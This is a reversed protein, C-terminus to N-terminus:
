KSKPSSLNCQEALKGLSHYRKSSKDDDTTQRTDLSSYSLRTTPSLINLSFPLRIILLSFQFEYHLLVFYNLINSVSYGSLLQYFAFLIFFIIKAFTLHITQFYEKYVKTQLRSKTRSNVDPISKLFFSCVILVASDM